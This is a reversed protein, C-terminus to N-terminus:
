CDEVVLRKPKSEVKVGATVMSFQTFYTKGIKLQSPLRGSKFPGLGDEARGQYHFASRGHRGKLFDFRWKAPAGKTIDVDLLVRNTCSFFDFQVKKIKAPPKGDFPLVTFSEVESFYGGGSMPGNTDVLVHWYWTGPKFAESEETQYSSDRPLIPGLLPGSYDAFAGSPELAPSPSVEVFSSAEGSELVWDFFPRSTTSQGAVPYDLYVAHASTPFM